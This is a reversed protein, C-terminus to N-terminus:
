GDLPIEIVAGVALTDPDPGIRDANWAYLVNATALVQALPADGGHWLAEAIGWLSDGYRVEYSLGLAPEAALTSSVQVRGSGPHTVAEEVASLWAAVREPTAVTATAGQGDPTFVTSAAVSELSSLPDDPAPMAAATGASVPDNETAPDAGGSGVPQPTPAPPPSPAPPPRPAPPPAAVPQPQPEPVQPQPPPVDPPTSEPPPPAPAAPEADPDAEPVAEAPLEADPDAEPLAPAPLQEADPQVGDVPAEAAPLPDEPAVEDVPEAPPVPVSPAGDAVSNAPPVPVPPAEGAWPEEADEAEEASDVEGTSESEEEMIGPTESGEGDM